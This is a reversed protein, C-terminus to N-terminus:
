EEDLAHEYEAIKKKIFPGAPRLRHAQKMLVLALELNTKELKLAQGRLFNATKSIQENPELGELRFALEALVKEFVEMQQEHSLPTANDEEPYMSFDDSFIHESKSLGYDENLRANGEKFQEYFAEAESRSPLLKEDDQLPMARVIEVLLHKAPTLEKFHSRTQHLFLQQTRNLSTNVQGVSEYSSLDTEGLVDM